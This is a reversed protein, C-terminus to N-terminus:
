ILAAVVEKAVIKGFVKYLKVTLATCGVLYVVTTAVPHDYCVKEIKQVMNNLKDGM